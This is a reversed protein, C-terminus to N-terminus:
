TVDCISQSPNRGVFHHDLDNLGDIRSLIKIRHQGPLFLKPSRDSRGLLARDDNRKQRRTLSGFERISEPWASFHASTVRVSRRYWQSILYEREMERRHTSEKM